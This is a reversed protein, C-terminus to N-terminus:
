LVSLFFLLIIDWHFIDKLIKMVVLGVTLFTLSNGEPGLFIIGYPFRSRCSPVSLMLFPLMPLNKHSKKKNNLDKLFM